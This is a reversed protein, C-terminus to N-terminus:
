IPVTSKSFSHSTCISGRAFIASYTNVKAFIPLSFSVNKVVGFTALGGLMASQWFTLFVIAKVSFLQLLPKHLAIDPSIIVYLQLLCYMAITVSISVITVIQEMNCLWYLRKIVSSHPIYRVWIHAWVPSWSDECYLGAAEMIVSMQSPHLLFSRLWQCPTSVIAGSSFSRFWRPQSLSTTPLPVSRPRIVCYQLVGWKM